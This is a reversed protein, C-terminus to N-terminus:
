GVRLLRASGILEGMKQPALLGALGLGISFWGLGAAIKAAGVDKVSRYKLEVYDECSIEKRGNEDSSRGDNTSNGSTIENFQAKNTREDKQTQLGTKM